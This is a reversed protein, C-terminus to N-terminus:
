YSDASVVEGGNRSGIARWIVPNVTQKSFRAHGDAFLINAGGPHRSGATWAGIQYGTGNLCSHDNVPMTHNYLTMGFEGHMWNLGKRYSSVKATVINLGHCLNAFADFQEPKDLRSLTHFISRLPDRDLFSGTGLVWESVMATTSTGDSIQSIATTRGPPFQFVGDEGYKQLGIGRSGAYSAWGLGPTTPAEAPDSPCVYVSIQTGGATSNAVALSDLSLTFNIANFLVAQDEFPLIVVLYSSGGNGMAPPLSGNSSAYNLLGLGIQRLNNQCRAKRASERAIQVAPILLAVLLGIISIVVLCEILTFARAPRCGPAVEVSMM